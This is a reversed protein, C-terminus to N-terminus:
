FARRVVEIKRAGDAEIEIWVDWYHKFGLHKRLSERADLYKLWAEPWEVCWVRAEDYSELSLREFGEDDEIRYADIHVLLGVGPM